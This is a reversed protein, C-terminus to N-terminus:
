RGRICRRRTVPHARHARHRCLPPSIHLTWMMRREQSTPPAPPPRTLIIHEQLRIPTSGHKSTSSHLRFPLWLPPTRHQSSGAYSLHHSKNHLYRSIQHSRNVYLVSRVVLQGHPVDCTQFNSVPFLRHTSTYGDDEATQRMPAAGLRIKRNVVNGPGVHVVTWIGPVIVVGAM